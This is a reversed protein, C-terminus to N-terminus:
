FEAQLHAIQRSRARMVVVRGYGDLQSRDISELLTGLEAGPAMEDLQDIFADPFM